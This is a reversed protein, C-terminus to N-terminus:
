PSVSRAACRRDRRRPAGPRIRQAIRAGVGEISRGGHLELDLQGKLTDNVSEILQRIPKLLQEDPRPARSRYSPRLCGCEANPWGATWNPPSM